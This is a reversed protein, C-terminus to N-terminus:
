YIGKNGYHASVIHSQLTKPHTFSKGCLDCTHIPVKKCFNKESKHVTAMHRNLNSTSSFTKQCLECNNESIENYNENQHVISFPVILVKQESKHVDM